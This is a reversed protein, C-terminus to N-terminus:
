PAAMQWPLTPEAALDLCAAGLEYVRAKTVTELCQRHIKPQYIRKDAQRKIREVM